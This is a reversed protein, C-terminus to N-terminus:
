NEDTPKIDIRFGTLRVALRVNQADKGIALSVQDSPVYAIYQKKEIDEPIVESVQAPLLANKIYAIPDKNWLIIDIKEGGLEKTVANIRRRREGVLAGIINLHVDKELAVSVKSRLGSERAINVIKVIGNELEPTELEFLHKIFMPHTRSLMVEVKGRVMSVDVILFRMRTLHSYAEGPTQEGPLMKAEFPEGDEGVIDVFVTNDRSTYNIIGSVLTHLRSNFFAYTRKSRDDEILKRVREYIVPSALKEFDDPTVDEVESGSESLIKVTGDTELINVYLREDPMREVSNEEYVRILSEKAKEVIDAFSLDNEVAFDKLKEVDIKM